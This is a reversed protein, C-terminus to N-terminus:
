SGPQRRWRRHMWVWQDPVRRIQAEIAATMAATAATPDAPLDLRPHITARHSGDPLREIFTPLVVANWRRALDAAGVPTYAPRGFFPVWVGDVRTDQDILMGLAGGGRLARLLDRAAGPAGRVITRSGFRSRFDVLLAQLGPDDLERAVVAMGLGHANLAAALMEWNGCHGTAIHIPRGEARAAEVHEWGEMAVRRRLETEGRHRLWLCEALMAGFHEFSARSLRERAELTREPFAIELHELSRTRDRAALRWGTRGLRRGFAQAENWDLRELLGDLARTAFRLLASRAPHRSEADARPETM